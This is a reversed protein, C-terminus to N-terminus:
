LPYYRKGFIRGWLWIDDINHISCSKKKSYSFPFFVFCTARTKNKLTNPNQDLVLNLYFHLFTTPSTRRNACSANTQILPCTQECLIHQNTGTLTEVQMPTCQNVCVPASTWTPIRYKPNKPCVCSNAKLLIWWKNSKTLNYVMSFSTM